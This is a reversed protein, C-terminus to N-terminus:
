IHSWVADEELALSHFDGGGALDLWRFRGAELVICSHPAGGKPIAVSGPNLYMCGEGFPEWAPVHTHGHVLCDGRRLLPPHNLNWVHGHTAFLTIGDLYVTCSETLIPFSLMMQDVESDCNGRVYLIRDKVANLLDAVRVPDYDVPLGNRPGHYLLDGLLVLREPRERRWAELLRECWTASGHIDSAIMLKM